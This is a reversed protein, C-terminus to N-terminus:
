HCVELSQLADAGSALASFSVPFIILRWIARTPGKSCLFRRLSVQSIFRGGLLASIRYTCAPSSGIRHQGVM